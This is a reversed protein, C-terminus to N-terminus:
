QLTSEVESEDLLAEDAPAEHGMGALGGGSSMALAVFQDVTMQKGNFTVQDNAYHLSSSIDEGQLVALESAVAMGSAMEGVMAAQQAIAEKDTEGALTAQVGIVDTIMAKSVLLKADLQAILQKALEPAPLDFSVPKDLDLGFSFSSEGNATKFALKELALGPKGALLKELDTKFQATQEDTLQPMGSESDVKGSQLLTGYLEVM